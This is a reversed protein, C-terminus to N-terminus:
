KWPNEKIPINRGNTNNSYRELAEDMERTQEWKSKEFSIIQIEGDSSAGIAVWQDSKSRYKNMSSIADLRPMVGNFSKGIVYTIGGWPKGDFTIPISFDHFEGDKAALKKAGGIHTMIAEILHGPITMLFFIIDTKKPDTILKVHQMLEDFDKSSWSRKLSNSKKPAPTDKKRHYYDADILQGFSQDASFYTAGDPMFLGHKIHFALLVMENNAVIKDDLEARQKIYFAFEYPDTLYQAILDLDFLSIQIPPLQSVDELFAKMQTLVAPYPENTVCLIYAREIGQPLLIQKGSRDKLKYPQDGLIVDRVKIGQEYPEIVAKQFDRKIADIDGSLAEITMKKSKNQAIIITNGLVAMIDIDTIRNKGKYIDIDTYVNSKGFINVFYDYTIEEAINGIHKNVESVYSKDQRMWYLPSKYIASALNMKNPLFYIDDALKVIPRYNFINEDGPENFAPLQDGPKCTFLNLFDKVNEETIKKNHKKASSVIINLPFAMEDIARFKGEAEIHEKGITENLIDEHTRAYHLSNIADELGLFICEAYDLDFATNNKIWDTDNAYLKAALEFCQVDYFGMDGYFTSEVIIDRTGFVSRLHQEKAARSEDAPVEKTVTGLNYTYTWHLEDLLDRTKTIATQIASESLEDTNLEKIKLLLGVILSFENVHLRDRWDIDSIKRTDVFFDISSLEAIVYVYGPSKILQNLDELISSRPRKSRKTQKPM